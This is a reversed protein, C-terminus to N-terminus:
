GSILKYKYFIVKANTNYEKYIIRENKSDKFKIFQSESTVTRKCTNCGNQWKILKRKCNVNHMKLKNKGVKVFTEVEVIKKM